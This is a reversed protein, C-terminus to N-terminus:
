YKIIPMLAIDRVANEAAGTAQITIGTKSSNISVTDDISFLSSLAGRDVDGGFRPINNSHTHGPDNVGHSHTLIQDSKYSGVYWNDNGRRSDLGSGLNAGRIYVGTLRPIRFTTSGNGATFSGFWGNNWWDNESVLGASQAYDWLDAYTARSVEAGNAILWGTPAVGARNLCYNVIGTPSMRANLASLRSEVYDFLVKDSVVKKGAASTLIDAVVAYQLDVEWYTAETLPQNINDSKAKYIVGTASQVRANQHYSQSANWEPIGTQLMYQIAQDFLYLIFNTEQRSPAENSLYGALYDANSTSVKQGNKAFIDSFLQPYNQKNM